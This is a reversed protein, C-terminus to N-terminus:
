NLGLPTNSYQLFPTNFFRGIGLFGHEFKIQSQYSFYGVKQHYSPKKESKCELVGFSWREMVGVVPIISYM